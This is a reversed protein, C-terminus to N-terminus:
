QALRYDRMAVAIAVAEEAVKLASNPLDIGFRFKMMAIQQNALMGMGNVIKLGREKARILITTRPYLVDAVTADDPLEDIFDVSEYDEAQGVAGLSTCQVVLNSRSAFKKLNKDTMEGCDTKVGYMDSIKQAIYEAKEVTRNLVSVSRAGRECLDAAIPGAVAGAGLILVDKDKVQTNRAIAMGMGVGDLGVGILKGDEWKVHNVCKFVRSSEDCEDLYQIINTKHPMTIDFGIMKMTKSADIFAALEGEKVEVNLCIANVNAFDYMANHVYAACSYDLPYGIQCCYKTNIDHKVRM